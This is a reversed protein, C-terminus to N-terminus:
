CVRGAASVTDLREAGEHADDERAKTERVAIVIACAILAAITALAPLM